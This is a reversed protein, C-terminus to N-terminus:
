RCKDFYINSIVYNPIKLAMVVLSQFIMMSCFNSLIISEVTLLKRKNEVPGKLSNHNRGRFISKWYMKFVIFFKQVKSKIDLLCIQDKLNPTM